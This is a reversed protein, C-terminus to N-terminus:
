DFIFFLFGDYVLVVLILDDGVFWDGCVLEYWCWFVGVLGIGEGFIVFLVLCVVNIVLVVCDICVM